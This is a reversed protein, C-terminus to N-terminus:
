AFDAGSRTIVFDVVIYEIARAPKIYIKAYMINRDILDATTTTEDLILKYEVIGFRSKVDSLVPEVQGKFRAWTSSINQDFLLNKSITSVKSKLYLLLRRVNIRDLASPTSQLTKQGFIVVGENPFTAIPNINQAYLKDRESVDLRQRAQVVRPGQGGGLNGLGGRNFGAPAFWLESQAESKAFAGLAAISSPVWVRQASGLTDQIQVWPYFACAYSSDINRNKLATVASDVSGRRTSAAANSEASPLYDNELDIIGLCDKREECINIIKNTVVPQYIGPVMMLNCPVNEVDNVSDLAKALSYYVYSNQNTSEDSLLSNRFPEKEKVDLGDFGGFFPAAFKKVRKNLLATSSSMATYSTGSRRSGSTYTVTNLADDIIIDDLSFVFSHEFYTDPSRQQHYDDGMRRVYDGYGPDLQNTTSTITPRIGWTCSYPSSPSGQTGNGRLPLSPFHYSASADLPLLFETFQHPAFEYGDSDLGAMYVSGSGLAMAGPLNQDDLSFPGLQGYGIKFTQPRIPGFFGFPLVNTVEPGTDKIDDHVVVRVFDSNNPWDGSARYRRDSESWELSQDGIRRGIYNRDAPNLNLSRYEELVEGSLDQILLTFTSFGSVNPNSPLALDSIVVITNKQFDEGDHLSELYFLKQSNLIEHSTAEGYDQGFFWGTTAKKMGERHMHPGQGVSSTALGILIGQVGNAGATTDVFDALHRDFTEGLWYTKPSSVLTSNCLQPNTNFVNRIYDASNRDFNFQKTDLITGSDNRIEMKFGCNAANSYINVAAGSLAIETGGAGFNGKLLVAGSDVYFIAALSGTPASGSNSLFLGYAGGNSGIAQALNNTTQWGAVGAGAASVADQDGLARVITVPSNQSALWAQAAYAAYTPGARNGDRWVDNKLSAGGPIPAGFVSVFDQLSRVKTPVM